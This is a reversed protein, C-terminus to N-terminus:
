SGFQRLKPFIQLNVYVWNRQVQMGDAAQHVPLRSIRALLEVM